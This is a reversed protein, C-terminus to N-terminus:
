ESTALAKGLAYAEQLATPHKAIDGAADVEKYLLSKYLEADLVDFFYKMTLLVGDFLKAGKTAGVSIFIGKKKVSGGGVPQKLIYKRAWLAQCRDILAKTQANVNYFFIPAAVAICDNEILLPYIKQMDDKIICEGAEACKYDEICALIRKECLHIEHTVAGNDQAGKLFERLLLATNGEKRPSGYIGLLKM